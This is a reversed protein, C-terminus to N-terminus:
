IQVRKRKAPALRRAKAVTKDAAEDNLEDPDFGLLERLLGPAIPAPDDNDDIADDPDGDRFDPRPENPGGFYLDAGLGKWRDSM